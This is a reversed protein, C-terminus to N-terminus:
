CLRKGIDKNVPQSTGWGERGGDRGSGGGELAGGERWYRMSSPRSWGSEKMSEYSFEETEGFSIPAEM